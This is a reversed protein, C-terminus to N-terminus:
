GLARYVHRAALELRPRLVDGLVREDDGVTGSPVFSRAGTRHECKLLEPERICEGEEPTEVGPRARTERDVLGLVLVPEAPRPSRGQPRRERSRVAARDGARLRACWMFSGFADASRM